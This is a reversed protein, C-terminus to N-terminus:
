STLACFLLTRYADPKRQKEVHQATQVEGSIPQMHLHVQTAPVLDLKHHRGVQVPRVGHEGEVM